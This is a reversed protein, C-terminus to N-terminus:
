PQEKTNGEKWNLLDRATMNEFTERTRVLRHSSGSVTVIAPRPFGFSSELATFYAGSDMIAIVEGPTVKPMLKNRYIIDGAFCAPGIITVMETRPRTVDNCLLIEHYEYYTPTTVTSLGGDAILWKGVGKREKVRHVTLLLFQNSSTICRGPEFILDPLASGPFHDLVARAIVEAFEMFTGTRGHHHPKPLKGFAHYTLLEATTLERTTASAFGGGVDLVEIRFGTRRTETTLLSLCKLARAYDLPDQIGTGIHFHFGRFVTARSDRLHHLATAVEGGKLDLGFASGKRSGTATGRNMRKPVFDPNVRLLIDVTRNLHHAVSMLSQLEQLSDVIILRANSQISKRLFDETKCPGNVIIQEGAFGLRLALELEYETMVEAHLGASQVARVVAPVSNCKFAFHVRTKSPAYASEVAARFNRATTLLRKEDIVHLPTGYEQALSLVGVSGVTLEGAPTARLDWHAPSPVTQVANMDMNM